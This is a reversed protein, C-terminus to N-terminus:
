TTRIWRVEQKELYLLHNRHCTWESTWSSNLLNSSCRIDNFKVDTVVSQCQFCYVEAVGKNILNQIYNSVKTVFLPPLYSAGAGNYNQGSRLWIPMAVRAMQSENSGGCTIQFLDEVFDAVATTDAIVECKYATSYKPSAIVIRSTCPPLQKIFQQAESQVDFIIEDNRKGFLKSLFTM